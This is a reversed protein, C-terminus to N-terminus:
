GQATPSVAEVRTRLERALGRGTEALFDAKRSRVTLNEQRITSALDLTNGTEGREVSIVLHWIAVYPCGGGADECCSPWQTVALTLFAM